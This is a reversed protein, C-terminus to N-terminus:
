WGHLREGCVGRESVVADATEDKAAFCGLGM